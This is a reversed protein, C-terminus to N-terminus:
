RMRYRPVRSRRDALLLLHRWLGAPPQLFGSSGVIHALFPAVRIVIDAVAVRQAVNIFQRDRVVFTKGTLDQVAPSDVADQCELGSARERYELTRREADAPSKAESIPGVNDSACIGHRGILPGVIPDICGGEHSRSPSGEAIQAPVVSRPGANFFM